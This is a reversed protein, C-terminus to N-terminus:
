LGTVDLRVGVNVLTENDFLFLLGYQSSILHSELWLKIRKKFSLSKLLKKDIQRPIPLVCFLVHDFPQELEPVLNFQRLLHDLSIELQSILSIKIERKKDFWTHNQLYAIVDDITTQGVQLDSLIEELFLERHSKKTSRETNKQFRYVPMDGYKGTATLHWGDELLRNYEVRWSTTNQVEIFEDVHDYQNQQLMQWRERDFERASEHNFLLLSESM